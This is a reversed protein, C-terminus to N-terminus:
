KELKIRQCKPTETHHCPSVDEKSMLSYGRLRPLNIGNAKVLEELKEIQSYAYLDM